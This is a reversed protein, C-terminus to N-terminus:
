TAEKWKRMAEKLNALDVEDFTAKKLDNSKKKDINTKASKIRRDRTAQVMLDDRTLKTLSVAESPDFDHKSDPGM